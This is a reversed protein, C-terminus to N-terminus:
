YAFPLATISERVENAEVAFPILLFV